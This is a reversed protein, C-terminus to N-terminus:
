PDTSTSNSIFDDDALIDDFYFNYGDETGDRRGYSPDLLPIDEESSEGSDDILDGYLEEREKKQRRQEMRRQRRIWRKRARKRMNRKRQRLESWTLKMQKKKKMTMMNKKMGMGMGMRMMKMTNAGSAMTKVNM